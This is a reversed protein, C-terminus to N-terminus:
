DMFALLDQHSVLCSVGASSRAAIWDALTGAPVTGTEAAATVWSQALAIILAQDAPDLRWPSAGLLVRYGANTLHRALVDCAGFGLAPGFGKDGVFHQHFAETILADAPHPPHWQATDDHTLAAYLPIRAGALSAVLRMIWPESVLDFLAAATVLDPRDDSWALIDFALDTRRFEVDLIKDDKHAKLRDQLPSSTDAWDAIAQRVVALLHRDHDLLLWDQQPPLLPALARLNSGTGTGLDVIRM